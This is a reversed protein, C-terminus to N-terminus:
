FKELELAVTLAESPAENSNDDPYGFYAMIGDGIFKDLIGNHDSIIKASEDFYEKLFSIIHAQNDILKNCLESFGSIDWFAITLRIWNIESITLIRLNQYVLPDFYKALEGIDYPNIRNSFNSESLSPMVGHKALPNYPSSSNIDFIKDLFKLRETNSMGEENKTFIIVSGRENLHIECYYDIRNIDHQFTMRQSETPKIPGLRAVSYVQDDKKYYFFLAHSEFDLNTWEVTEGKQIKVFRPIFYKLNNGHDIFRPIIVQQSL